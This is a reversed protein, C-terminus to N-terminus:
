RQLCHLDQQPSYNQSIQGCQQDIYGFYTRPLDVQTEGGGWNKFSHFMKGFIFSFFVFNLCFVDSKRVFRGQNEFGLLFQIDSYPMGSFAKGALEGCFNLFM